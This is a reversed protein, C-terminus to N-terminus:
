ALSGMHCRKHSCLQKRAQKFTLQFTMAKDKGVAEEGLFESLNIDLDRKVEEIEKHQSKLKAELGQRDRHLQGIQFKLNPLQQREEQLAIEANKYQRL